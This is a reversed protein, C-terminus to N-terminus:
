AESPKSAHDDRDQHEVRECLFMKGSQTLKKLLQEQSKRVAGKSRAILRQELSHFHPVMSIDQMVSCKRPVKTKGGARKKKYEATRRVAHSPRAEQLTFFPSGYTIKQRLDPLEKVVSGLVERRKWSATTEMERQLFSQLDEDPKCLWPHEMADAATVRTEPNIRLCRRIFDKADESISASRAKVVDEFIRKMLQTAERKHYTWRAFIGLLALNDVTSPGALLQAALVGISWMDVPPGHDHQPKLLERYLDAEDKRGFICLFKRLRGDELVLSM